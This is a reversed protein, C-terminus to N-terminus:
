PPAFRADIDFECKDAVINVREGGYITGINITAEGLLPHTENSIPSDKLDCIIKASDEIASIGLHPYAGHAKKGFVTARAHMLGKQAITIEFGDGDLIVAEKAPLSKNELLPILGAGGGSEEDAMALFLIDQKLIVNDESMSKAVEALMAVHCKDDTAGRGYLKGDKIKGSFPPTDWGRGAPVTDSHAIFVLPNESSKGKLTGLVNPRKKEFTTIQVDLGASSFSEEIIKSIREENGPPNESPTQVLRQLLAVLREKRIM